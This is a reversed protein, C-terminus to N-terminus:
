DIPSPSPTPVGAGACRSEILRVQKAYSSCASEERDLAAIYGAFAVARDAASAHSFQQYM